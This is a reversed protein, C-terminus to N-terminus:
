AHFAELGARDKARALEELFTALTALSAIILTSRAAPPAAPQTMCSVMECCPQM